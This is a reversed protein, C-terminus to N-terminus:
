ERSLWKIIIEQLADKGSEIEELNKFTIVARDNSKWDLLGSDDDILKEAPIQQVKAGCHFILQVLKPSQVRMTIRDQDKCVYNPGNWRINETLEPNNTLIFSRLANIGTQLPHKVSTVLATADENLM